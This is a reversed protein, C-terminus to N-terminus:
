QLSTGTSKANKKSKRTLVIIDIDQISRGNDLIQKTSFTLVQAEQHITIYVRSIVKESIPYVWLPRTKHLSDM